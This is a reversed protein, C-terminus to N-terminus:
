DQGKGFCGGCKQCHNEPFAFATINNGQKFGKLTKEYGDLELEIEFEKAQCVIVKMM